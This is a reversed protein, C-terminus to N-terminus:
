LFEINGSSIFHIMEQLGNFELSYVFICAATSFACLYHLVCNTEARTTYLCLVSWHQAWLCVECNLACYILIFDPNSVYVKTALKALLFSASLFALFAQIICGNLAYHIIQLTVELFFKLQWMKNYTPYSHTDKIKHDGM